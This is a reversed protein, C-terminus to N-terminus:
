RGGTVSIMRTAQAGDEAIARLLYVGTPLQLAGLDILVPSATEAYRTLRERGLLDHLTLHCSGRVEGGIRVFLRAGAAVPQPWADLALARPAAPAEIGTSKRIVYTIAVHRDTPTAAFLLDAGHAGVELMTSNPQVSIQRSQSGSTPQADLWWESPQATWPMALGGGTWLQVNQAGPLAGGREAEFYLHEPSLVVSGPSDFVVEISSSCGDGSGQQDSRWQWTIDVTGAATLQNSPTIMWWRTCSANPLLTGPSVPGGQQNAFEPSTFLQTSDSGALVFEPPLIISAECGTLAITGTNTVTYSVFLPDPIFREYYPDAYLSDHGGTACAIGMEEPWAEIHITASCEKWETQQDSRYRIIVTQKEGLNGPQPLLRWRLAGTAHSDIAALTKSANESPALLFRPAQTLDMSAEINTEETDLLNELSFSATIEEPDYRLEARNFRVSDTATMTCILGDLGELAITHTCVALVSDNADYATATCVATRSARLILAHLNWDMTIDDGPDISGGARVLPDLSILGAEPFGAAPIIALEYRDVYVAVTGTNTLTYQLQAPTRSRIQTLSLSDTGVLDCIV